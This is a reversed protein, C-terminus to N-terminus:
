SLDASSCRGTGSEASARGPPSSPKSRGADPLLGLFEPSPLVGLEDRVLRCFATHARRAEALNGEALHARVLARHASERLPDARVAAIAAEVAEAFRGGALLRDSMADLAHLLLQRLRERELLVWEDYWGPLLDLSQMRWGLGCLMAGQVAPDLVQAAWEYVLDVDVVTDGQLTLTTKDSTLVDVGACKMRWLASRLNGAARADGGTPWLLGAAWQRDVPQASNLAVLALLRKSGEPVRVKERGRMVFPGGFLHVALGGDHGHRDILLDVLRHSVANWGLGELHQDGVERL